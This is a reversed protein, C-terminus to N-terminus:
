AAVGRWTGWELRLVDSIEGLTAMRKVAEVMLPLLNSAPDRAAARLSDLAARAAAEDRQARVDQVKRRQEAELASYDPQEIRPPGEDERYVNVGM